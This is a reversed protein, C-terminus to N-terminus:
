FGSVMYFYVTTGMVLFTYVTEKASTTAGNNVSKFTFGASSFSATGSTTGRVSLTYTGGDRLNNLTFTNGPNATTYALNSLSFDIITGAGANYASANTAAGNVTLRSNPTLTGIGVNGDHGMAMVYSSAASGNDSVAQFNLIGVNSNNSTYNIKFLKNGATNTLNELYLGPGAYGGADGGVGTSTIIGGKVYSTAIGTSQSPEVIHLYNLPSTTGIGVRGLDTIRMKENSNTGGNNRTHFTIQSPWNGSNSGTAAITLIQGTTSGPYTSQIVGGNYNAFNAPTFASISTATKTTIAANAGTTSSGVELLNTPANNGIGINGGSTIRMRELNNTRAVFDVADTTGIFNTSASTSNNGLTTWETSTTSTQTSFKLWQSGNWFYYGPIVNNPSVGATATNYVITGSAIAGGQPNVVPAAVNSATLAVQPPIFGTTTSNIEMAGRPTTTGVGIQSISFQTVVLATLLLLNKKM